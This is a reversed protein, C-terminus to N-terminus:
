KLQYTNFEKFEKKLSDYFGATNHYYGFKVLESETFDNRFDFLNNKDRKDEVVKWYPCRLTLTDKNWRYYFPGDTYRVHVYNNEKKEKGYIFYIGSNGQDTFPSNQIVTFCKNDECIFESTRKSLCSTLILSMVLVLLIKILRDM